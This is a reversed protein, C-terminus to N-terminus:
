QRAVILRGSFVKDSQTNTLRILYVGGNLNSVNLEFQNSNSQHQELLAGSVSFIELQHQHSLRNNFLIRCQDIAPNPRIQFGDNGVYVFEVSRVESYGQLGLELRYYNVQNKAPHKDSHSYPQAFDPSGCIGPIHGIEEFFQGDTSREITIGNCTNGRGIVWSLYVEDEFQFVSFDDLIQHQASASNSGFNMAAVLILSYVITLFRNTVSRKV